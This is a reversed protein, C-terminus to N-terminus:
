FLTPGYIIGTSSNNSNSNSGSGSGRSLNSNSFSSNYYGVNNCYKNGTIVNIGTNYNQHQNSKNVKELKKILLDLEEGSLNKHKEWFLKSAQEVQQEITIYQKKTM